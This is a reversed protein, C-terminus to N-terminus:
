KLDELAQEININVNQHREVFLGQMKGILELARIRDSGRNNKHDLAEDQLAQIIHDPGLKILNRAEAIWARNVSPAAIIRAYSESYGAEMASTYPNGFTPSKPTLYFALFKEQQASGTWQNPQIESNQTRLGYKKGKKKPQVAM